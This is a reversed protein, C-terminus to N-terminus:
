ADEGPDKLLEEVSVEREKVESLELIFDVVKDEFIPARLQEVAQPNKQFFEYVQREQGPFRRAENVVARSLEDRTVEVKNRRGVEALLLGLRVRREAIARYEAKLEDESKNADEGAQGNKLEDQVRRWIADFELDLMGQPVPFDAKAALQDLLARKLRARSAQGYDQQLRERIITKLADLNELGMDKALEDDVPADVYKRLEKVDVEFVAEKGALESHGYDAPFTVTVTRHEGPKAGVIQDEFGPIFQGSGLELEHDKADMGPLAKGDVTGAFDILVVDGAKSARKREVAETRRRTKALRELAEDVSKEDVPAVLRELSIGKFEPPEIDPLIEIALKYELDSGEEFKTVEVKPELAPRLGKDRIAEAAGDNVARELVEGLVSQGYRQRLIPMPVKGPRFGPLRVDRAIETLRSDVRAKIDNAPVVVTFERKLGEAATETIQM